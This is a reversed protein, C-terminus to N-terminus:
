IVNYGLEVTHDASQQQHCDQMHVEMIFPM